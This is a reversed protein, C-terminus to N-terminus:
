APAAGQDQPTALGNETLYAIFEIADSRIVDAAGDPFQAALHAVLEDLSQAVPPLQSWIAAGVTNVGFYQETRTCYLVGGDPLPKFIATSAPVPLLM